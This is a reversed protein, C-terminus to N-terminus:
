CTVRDHCHISKFEHTLHNWTVGEAEYEHQYLQEMGGESQIRIQVEGEDETDNMQKTKPLWTSIVVYIHEVLCISVESHLIYLGAFL